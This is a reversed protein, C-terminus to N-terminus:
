LQAPSASSIRRELFSLEREHGELAVVPIHSTRFSRKLFSLALAGADGSLHTDVIILDPQEAIASQVGRAGTMAVLLDCDGLDLAKSLRRIIEPDEAIALVQTKSM